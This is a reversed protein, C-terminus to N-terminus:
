KRRRPEACANLQAMMGELKEIMRQAIPRLEAVEDETLKGDELARRIDGALQGHTEDFQLFQELLGVDGTANYRQVPVGVFGCDQNLQQLTRFDKSALMVSRAQKLTPAHAMNPDAKNQLVGSKMGIVKALAPAGGEFDHVTRYFAVDLPDHIHALEDYGSNSM